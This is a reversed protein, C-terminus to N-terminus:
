IHILSLSIGQAALASTLEQQSSLYAKFGAKTGLANDLSDDVLRAGNLWLEDAALISQAADKNLHGSNVMKQLVLGTDNSSYSYQDIDLASILSVLGAEIDIKPAEIRSAVVGLHGTGDSGAQITITQPIAWASVAGSVALQLICLFLFFRRLLTM